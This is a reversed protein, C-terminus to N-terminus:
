YNGSLNAFNFVLAIWLLLASSATVIISGLRLWRRRVSWLVVLDWCSALVAGFFTCLGAVKLLLLWGDM